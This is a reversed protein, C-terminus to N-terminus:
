KDQVSKSSSNVHIDYPSVEKYKIKKDKPSLVDVYKDM